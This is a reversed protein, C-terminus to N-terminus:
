RSKGRQVSSSRNIKQKRLMFTSFTSFLEKFNKNKICREIQINSISEEIFDEIKNKNGQYISILDEM